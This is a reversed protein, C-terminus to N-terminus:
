LIDFFSANKFALSKVNVMRCHKLITSKSLQRIM